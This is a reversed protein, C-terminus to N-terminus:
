LRTAFSVLAISPASSLMRSAFVMPEKLKEVPLERGDELPRLKFKDMGGMNDRRGGGKEALGYQLTSFDRESM